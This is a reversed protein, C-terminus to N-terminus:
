RKGGGIDHPDPWPQEEPYDAELLYDILHRAKLLDERGNKDRHRIVYKIIGAEIVPIKNLHLFDIPEIQYKKYHDGGVQHYLASKKPMPLKM